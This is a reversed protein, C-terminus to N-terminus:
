RLAKQIRRRRERHYNYRIERDIELSRAEQPADLFAFKLDYRRAPRLALSEKLLNVRDRGHINTPSEPRDYRATAQIAALLVLSILVGRIRVVCANAPEIELYTGADPDVISLLM